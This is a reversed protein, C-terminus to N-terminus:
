VLVRRSLWCNQGQSRSMQTQGVKQFLLKQVTLTLAKINLIRMQQPLVKGHTGVIKVRHCQSQSNSRHKLFIHWSSLM